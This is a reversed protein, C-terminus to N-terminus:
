SQINQWKTKGVSITYHRLPRLGLPPTEGKRWYENKGQIFTALGM